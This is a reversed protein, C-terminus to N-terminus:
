PHWAWCPARLSISAPLFSPARAYGHTRDLRARSPWCRFRRIMAITPQAACTRARRFSIEAHDGATVQDACVLNWPAWVKATPYFHCHPGMEAGFARLLLARWAHLPRPSPRYLLTWCIGWALRKLRQWPSFAPRLYPDEATHAPIHEAANYHLQKPM